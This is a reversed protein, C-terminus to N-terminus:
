QQIFEFSTKESGFDFLLTSKYFFRFRAKCSPTEFIKRTMKGSSPAYLSHNSGDSVYVELKCSNNKIIIENRTCSIIKAGNYTAMKYEKGKYWVTCIFGRFEFGMFPIDAVSVMVSCKEKFDNSQIWVYNKPFSRGSDKEIYGLGNTLKIHRNNINIYGKLNHHMSIIGHRCQMPFYKFFGMIDRKLPTLNEYFVEGNIEVESSKIDLKLGNFSFINNQIKIIKEKQFEKKNFDINYSKENTIVQIFAKENSIGPIFCITDEKNQHKFYWGEFFNIM